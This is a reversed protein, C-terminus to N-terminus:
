WPTLTNYSVFYLAEWIEAGCPACGEWLSLELLCIIATNGKYRTHLKHWQWSGTSWIMGTRGDYRTHLFNRHRIEYTWAMASCDNGRTHFFHWHWTKPLNLVELKTLDAPDNMVYALLPWSTLHLYTQSFESSDSDSTETDTLTVCQYLVKGSVPEEDKRLICM